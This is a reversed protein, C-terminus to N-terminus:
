GTPTSRSRSTRRRCPGTRTTSCWRNATGPHTGASRAPGPSPSGGATSTTIVTSPVAPRRPRIQTAELDEDLVAVDVASAEPAVPTAVPTGPVAPLPPLTATAPAAPGAPATTPVAPIDPPTFLDPRTTKLADIRRRATRDSVGLYNAASRGTVTRGAMTEAAVWQAFPDADDAAPPLDFPWLDHGDRPESESVEPAADIPSAIEAATAATAPASAADHTTAAPITMATETRTPTTATREAFHTLAPAASAVDGLAAPLLATLRPAAIGRVVFAADIREAADRIAASTLGHLGVGAAAPVLIAYRQALTIVSPAAEAIGVLLRMDHEATARTIGPDADDRSSDAVDRLRGELAAIEAATTPQDTVSPHM